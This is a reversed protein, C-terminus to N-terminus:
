AKDKPGPLAQELIQVVESFGRRRAVDLASTGSDDRLLPDAGHSLLLQVADPANQSAAFQLPTINKIGRANPDAGANLLIEIMKADGALAAQHIPLMVGAKYGVEEALEIVRPDQQNASSGEKLLRTVEKHDKRAVAGYLDPKTVRRSSRNYLFLIGLSMLLAAAVLVLFPRRM